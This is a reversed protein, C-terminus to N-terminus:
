MLQIWVSRWCLSSSDLFQQRRRSQRSSYQKQLARWALVDDTSRLRLVPLPGQRVMGLVAVARCCPAWPITEKVM